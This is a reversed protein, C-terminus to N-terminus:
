WKIWIVFGFKVNTKLNQETKWIWKMEDRWKLFREDKEFGSESFENENMFWWFGNMLKNDMMIEKEDWEDDDFENAEMLM